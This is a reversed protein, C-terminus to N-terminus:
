KYKTQGKFWDGYGIGAWPMNREFNYMWPYHSKGEKGAEKSKIKQVNGLAKAPNGIIILEDGFEKSVTSNAGVLCNRGIRADPLITCHVAVQSYDGVIAGRCINSPPHPDNTFVTFPFVFVFNGLKTAQGIHVNCQMRCYDGLECYGQIDGLTGIMNHIGFKTYERITVRHGCMFNAGIENGCYIITHSRIMANAGINTPPNDYQDDYYYDHLPEGIVCDNAIISNDGITVNDYIITNDGIRVNQGIKASKSIQVNRNNFKM